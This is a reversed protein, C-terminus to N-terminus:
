LVRTKSAQPPEEMIARMDDIAKQYENKEAEYEDRKAEYISAQNHSQETQAILTEQHAAIKEATKVLENRSDAAEREAREASEKAEAEERKAKEAEAKLQATKALYERLIELNNINITTSINEFGELTSSKASEQIKEEVIKDVREPAVLPVDRSLPRSNEKEIVVPSVTRDELSPQESEIVPEITKVEPAFEVQQSPEIYKEVKAATSGNRSVRFRDGEALSPNVKPELIPEVTPPVEPLSFSSQAQKEIEAIDQASTSNRKMNDYMIPKVKLAKHGMGIIKGRIELLKIMEAVAPSIAVVSTIEVDSVPQQSSTNQIKTTNGTFTVYKTSITDYSVSRLKIKQATKVEQVERYGNDCLVINELATM